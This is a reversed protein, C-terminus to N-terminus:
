SVHEMKLAAKIAEKVNKDGLQLLILSDSM